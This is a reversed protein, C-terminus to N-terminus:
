NVGGLYAEQVLRNEKILEPTNTAVVEGQVLVSIRDALAFVAHTDHEVMLITVEGRLGDILESLKLTGGPGLGAMPEDLLLMVPKTALAMGMELQRREGHSLNGALVKARELLGMREVFLTASEVLKRDRAANSWFRYGTGQRAQVALMLNELVSFSNFLSTVQFARALGSRARHHVSTKTIDRGNLSLKGSDPTLLGTLLNLATTKGAGNPGILAHLEGHEVQLNFNKCVQLAGFHKCLSEAKLLPETM